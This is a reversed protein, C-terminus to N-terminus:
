KIWFHKYWSLKKLLGLLILITINLMVASLVFNKKLGGTCAISLMYLRLCLSAIEYWYALHRNKNM